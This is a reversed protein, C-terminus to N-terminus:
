LNGWNKNKSPTIYIKLFNRIKRIAQEILTDTGDWSMGMHDAVRAIPLAEVFRLLVAHSELQSLRSLARGIEYLYLHAPIKLDSLMKNQNEKQRRMQIMEDWTM